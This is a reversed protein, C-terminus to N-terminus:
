VGGCIRGTYVRGSGCVGTCAGAGAAFAGVVGGGAESGRIRDRDRDREGVFFVVAEDETFLDLRLVNALRELNPNRSTILTAGNGMRPLYPQLAAPEITDANDLVLLWRQDTTHLWNLTQQRLAAQDTMQRPAINLRYAMEAMETGLTTADDARLWQIVDYEDLHRYCYALALQTKGIGGLGTVAQTVAVTENSTLQDHLQTLWEERGTFLKNEPFPIHHFQPNSIPSQPNPTIFTHWPIGPKNNNLKELLDPIRKNRNAWAIIARAKDLRNGASLDNYGVGLDFYLNQLETDDFKDSILARLQSYDPM